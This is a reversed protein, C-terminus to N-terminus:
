VIPPLPASGPTTVVAARPEEALAKRAQEWVSEPLLSHIEDDALFLTKLNELRRAHLNRRAFDFVENLATTLRDMKREDQYQRARHYIIELLYDESVKPTDKAWEWYMRAATEHLEWYARDNNQRSQMLARQDIIKRVAPSTVYARRSSDYWVADTRKDLKRIYDLFFLDPQGKLEARRSSLMYRLTEVRFSRLPFLIDLDERVKEDAILVNESTTLLRHMMQYWELPRTTRNMQKGADIWVAFNDAILDVLSPIGGSLDYIDKYVREDLKYGARRIQEKVQELTFPSLPQQAEENLRRRIEYRSWRPNQRSGTSVVICRRTVLPEVLQTEIQQWPDPLGNQAEEGPQDINDLLLLLAPASPNRSIDILQQTLAAFGSPAGATSPARLYMPAQRVLERTLDGLVDKKGWDFDYYLTLLRADPANTSEVGEAERLHKLFFTKGLGASGWFYFVSPPRTLGTEVLLRISALVREEEVRKVYLDGRYPRIPRSGTPKPADPQNMANMEELPEKVEIGLENMEGGKSFFRNTQTRTRLM